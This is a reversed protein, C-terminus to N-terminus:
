WCALYYQYNLDLLLSQFYEFPREVNCFTM